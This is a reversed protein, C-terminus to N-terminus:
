MFMILEDFTFVKVLNGREEDIDMGEEKVEDKRLDPHLKMLNHPLRASYGPDSPHPIKIGQLLPPCELYFREDAARAHAFAAAFGKEKSISGMEYAWQRELEERREIEERLERVEPSEEEAGGPSHQTPLSMMTDEEACGLQRHKLRNLEELKELISKKHALSSKVDNRVKETMKTNCLEMKLDEVESKIRSIQYPVDLGSVQGLLVKEEVRRNVSERIEEDDLNKNLLEKLRAAM